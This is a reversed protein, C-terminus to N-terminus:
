KHASFVSNGIVQVHYFMTHKKQSNKQDNSFAFGISLKPTVCLGGVSWTHGLAM